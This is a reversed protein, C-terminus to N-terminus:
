PTQKMHSLDHTKLEQCLPWSNHSFNEAAKNLGELCIGICYRVSAWVTGGLEYYVRRNSVIFM